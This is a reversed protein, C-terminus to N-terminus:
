DIDRPNQWGTEDTSANTQKQFVLWADVLCQISQHVLKKLEVNKELYEYFHDYKDFIM